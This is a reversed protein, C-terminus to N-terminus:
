YWARLGIFYNTNREGSLEDYSIRLYPAFQRTFEYRISVGYDIESENSENYLLNVSPQFILRQTLLLEYEVELLLNVESESNVYLGTSIEFWYPALGKVGFFLSDDLTKINAYGAQIDWFPHIARSLSLSYDTNSNNLDSAFDLWIKNLDGGAYYYGEIHSDKSSNIATELKDIMLMQYPTSGHHNIFQGALEQSINPNYQASIPTSIVLCLLNIYILKPM